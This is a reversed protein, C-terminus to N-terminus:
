SAIKEQLAKVLEDSAADSYIGYANVLTGKLNFKPSSIAYVVAEDDPDSAGEFRYHRDVVFEHPSLLIASRQGALYQNRLNFDETYGERQLQALIASLTTMPEM